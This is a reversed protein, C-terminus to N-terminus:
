RSAPQPITCFSEFHDSSYYWVEPHTDSGGGVVIRREGRHNLGPTKVTYERYFSSPEKPLRGEYNGFHKGDNPGDDPPAGTLIDDIQKQAEKPLSNYPCADKPSGKQSGNHSGSHSGPNATSSAVTSSASNSGSSHGDDSQTGFWGLAAAIPVAVGILATLGKKKSGGKGLGGSGGGNRGSRNTSRNSNHSSAGKSAM